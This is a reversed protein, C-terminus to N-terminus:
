CSYIAPHHTDMENNISLSGNTCLHQLCHEGWLATHAALVASICQAPFSGSQSRPRHMCTRKMGLCAQRRLEDVVHTTATHRPLASALVSKAKPPTTGEAAVDVLRLFVLSTKRSTHISASAARHGRNCLTSMGALRPNGDVHNDNESTSPPMNQVSRLLYQSTAGLPM